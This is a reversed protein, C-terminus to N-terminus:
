KAARKAARERENHAQVITRETASLGVAPLPRGAKKLARLAADDWRARVRGAYARLARGAAQKEADTPARYTAGILDELHRSTPSQDFGAEALGKQVGTVLKGTAPNNDKYLGTSPAGLGPRDDRGIDSAGMALQGFYTAFGQIVHDANRADVHEFSVAQVAQGLRSARATGRRLEVALEREFPSVIYKDRFVDRGTTVEILPKFGGLMMGEDLPITSKWLSGAVGDFAGAEGM